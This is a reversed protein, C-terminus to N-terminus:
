ASVDGRRAAIAERALLMVAGVVGFFAAFMVSDTVAMSFTYLGARGSLSPVIVVESLSGALFVVYPIVPQLAAAKLLAGRSGRFVDLAVFQAYLMGGFLLGFLPLVGVLSLGEGLDVCVNVSVFAALLCVVACAMRLLSSTDMGM